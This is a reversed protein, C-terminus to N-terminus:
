RALYSQGARVVITKGLRFDRVSVVGRIVRTVTGDCRVLTDWETGRVTASSNGTVTSFRGKVKSRLAALLKNSPGRRAAFAQRTGPSACAVPSATTTLQLKTLGRDQRRQLVQFDTGSETATQLAPGGKGGAASLNVTGRLADIVTGVPLQRTTRLPVFKQGKGIRGGKRPLKVLITGKVLAVNVTAGLTPPQCADCTASGGSSLLVSLTGDSFNGVALGPGTGTFAGVALADPNLGVPQPPGPAPAFSGDGQGLLVSVTSAASDAVALDPRGDGNFDAVAVAALSGGLNIPSGPAQTFSGDGNGLLVSVTGDSRNLVALDPIGDGNFDANAIAVPASGVNIPSGPAPHFNGTGNGLLITVTNDAQDVVALDLYGDRNFDGVALAVPTNVAISSAPSFGGLGNGILVSVSGSAYNAVALDPTGAGTFDGAVISVPDAGVNIPSGPATTFYGTGSALLIRVDNDNGDTVALDTVGDGNFDGAALSTPFAGVPTPPLTSFQGAGYGLLDTVTGADQNAAAVDLFGDGNFDGVALADPHSGLAFPSGPAPNFLDARALVPFVAALAALAACMTGLLWALRRGSSPESREEFRQLQRDM